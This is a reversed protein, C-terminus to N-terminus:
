QMSGGTKQLHRLEFSHSCLQYISFGHSVSSDIMLVDFLVPFYVYISEDLLFKLLWSEKIEPVHQAQRPAELAPFPSLTLEGCSQGLNSFECHNFHQSGFRGCM